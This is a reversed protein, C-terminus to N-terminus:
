ISVSSGTQKLKEEETIDDDVALSITGLGGTGQGETEAFIEAKQAAIKDKEAQKRADRQAAKARNTSYL